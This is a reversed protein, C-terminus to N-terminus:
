FSQADNESEEKRRNIEEIRRAIIAAATNIGQKRRRALDKDWEQRLERAIARYKRSEMGDM